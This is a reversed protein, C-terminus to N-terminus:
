IVVEEQTNIKNIIESSSCDTTESLLYVKGGNKLVFAAGENDPIDEVRPFSTKNKVLVDPNLLEVLKGPTDEYFPIVWDVAKINSLVEMRQQLNHIPRMKGKKSKIYEDSNIGLVLKDGCLKAKELLRIHGYHLVDFCGNVFVITEGQKQCFQIVKILKDIEQVDFMSSNNISSISDLIKSKNHQIQTEKKVQTKQHNNLIDNSYEKLQNNITQAKIDQIVNNIKFKLEDIGVVSTGVKGVVIGAAVSAMFAAQEIPIKNSIAVAITSVVTDGAGTVDYVESSLAPVHSYDQNNKIITMGQSGRTVIMVKFNFEKILRLGKEIIENENNCVGVIEEFERLNPTIIDAGSYYGFDKLKPDVIVPIKKVTAIKILDKIYTLTGKAYDSFVVVDVFSLLKSFKDLIEKKSVSEFKNEKDLRLLQQNGSLIRLKVITPCDDVKLCENKINKSKLLESLINAEEDCGVMGLLTSNAGLAAINAAVNGSGGIRNETQKVHVVPVPAEPSIRTALGHWYQDLMVDGVVLVKSNAFNKEFNFNLLDIDEFIM